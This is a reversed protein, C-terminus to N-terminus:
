WDADVGMTETDLWTEHATWVRQDWEPFEATFATFVEEPMALIVAHLQQDHSFHSDSLAERNNERWDELLASLLREAVIYLCVQAGKEMDEGSWGLDTPDEGWAGLDTFTAWIDYTYIPVLADAREHITDSADDDDDIDEAMDAFDHAITQLWDAGPSTTSDPSATDAMSALTYPTLGMVYQHVTPM